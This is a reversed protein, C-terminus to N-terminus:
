AARRGKGFLTDALLQLGTMLAERDRDAATRRGPNRSAVGLWPVASFRQYVAVNDTVDKVRRGAKALADACQRYERAVKAASEEAPEGHGEPEVGADRYRGHVQAYLMAYRWGASHQDATIVNTTRLLDLPNTTMTQDPKRKTDATTGILAARRHQLEPTGM